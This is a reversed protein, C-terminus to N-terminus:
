WQPTLVFQSGYEVTFTYSVNNCQAQLALSGAATVQISGAITIVEYLGSTGFEQTTFGSGLNTFGGGSLVPTTSTGFSSSYGRWETMQVRMSGVSLTGNWWFTATASGTAGTTTPTYIIQGSVAYSGAPVPNALAAFSAPTLSNVLQGSGSLTPGAARPQNGLLTNLRLELAYAKDSTM